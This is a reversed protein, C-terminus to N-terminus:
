PTLSKAIAAIEGESLFNLKKMVGIRAIAQSIQTATRSLKESTEIPFHCDACHQQYLALGNPTNGDASPPEADGNDQQSDDGGAENDTATNESEEVSASSEDRSLAVVIQEIKDTSLSTLHSMTPEQSIALSIEELNRNSKDTESLNGHCSACHQDYLALGGSEGESAESVADQSVAPSQGQSGEGSSSSQKSSGCAFGILSFLVMAMPPTLQKFMQSLRWVLEDKRKDVSHIGLKFELLDKLYLYKVFEFGNYGM